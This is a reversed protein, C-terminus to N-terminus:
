RGSYPQEVASSSGSVFFLSLWLPLARSAMLSSSRGKRSSSFLHLYEDDAIGLTLLLVQFLDQFLFFGDVSQDMQSIQLASLIKDAGMHFTGNIQDASIIIEKARKRSLPLDGQSFILHEDGVAMIVIHGQAHLLEPPLSHGPAILHRHEAVGVLRIQLRLVADRDQIGSTQGIGPLFSPPWAVHDHIDILRPFGMVGLLIKLFATRRRSFLGTAPRFINFKRM